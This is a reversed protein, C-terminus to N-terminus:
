IKSKFDRKSYLIRVVEMTHDKVTYFIVYKKVYIRYYVISRKKFSNYKEYSEPNNARNIIEKEIENLLNKAAIENKLKNKIHSLIKDLDDFFLPLYTIQYKSSM